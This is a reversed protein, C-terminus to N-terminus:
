GGIWLGRILARRDKVELQMTKIAQWDSQEVM